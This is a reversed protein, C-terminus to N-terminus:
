RPSEVLLAGRTELHVLWVALADIDAGDGAGLDEVGSFRAALTLLALPAM